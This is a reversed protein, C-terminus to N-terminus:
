NTTSISILPELAADQVYLEVSCGSCKVPVPWDPEVKGIVLEKSCLPCTANTELIEAKKRYTIVFLVVAALHLSPVAIFHVTPVFIYLVALLICLGAKKLGGFIRESKSFHRIVGSGCSNKGNPGIVLLKIQRDM